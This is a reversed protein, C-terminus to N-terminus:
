NGGYFVIRGCLAFGSEEFPRSFASDFELSPGAAFHGGLFHGFAWEYFTGVGIFSQTGQADALGPTQSTLRASGVGFQAFAALGQLRPYAVAFPFAELRVGVGVATTRANVTRFSSDILFGFNLYDTLAGLIFISSTTGLSWDSSSYYQPDGIEQSNNPYGSGQGFGVGTAFGLVIGNRFRPPADMGAPPVDHVQPPAVAAVSVSDAFVLPLM